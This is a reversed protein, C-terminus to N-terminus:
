EQHKDEAIRGESKPETDKVLDVYEEWIEEKGESIVSELNDCDRGKPWSKQIVRSINDMKPLEHKLFSRGVQFNIDKQEVQHNFGRLIPRQFNLKFIPNSVIPPSIANHRRLLPVDLAFNPNRFIPQLQLPPISSVQTSNFDTETPLTRTIDSDSSNLLLQRSRIQLVQVNTLFGTKGSKSSILSDFKSRHAENALERISDELQIESHPQRPIDNDNYTDSEPTPPIVKRIFASSYVNHTKLAGLLTHALGSLSQNFVPKEGKPLTLSKSKLDSRVFSPRRELTNHKKIRETYEYDDKEFAIMDISPINRFRLDNQKILSNSHSVHILQYIQENSNKESIKDSIQEDLQKPSEIPVKPKPSPPTDKDTFKIKSPSELIVERTLNKRTEVKRARTRREQWKRRRTIMRLSLLIKLTADISDLRKEIAEFRKDMADLRDEIADLRDEIADLRDEIADLRDEIADLRDKIADLRADANTDQIAKTSPVISMINILVAFEPGFIGAAPDENPKISGESVTM